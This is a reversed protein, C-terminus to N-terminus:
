INKRFLRTFHINKKINNELTENYIQTYKTYKLIYQINSYINYIQTYKEEYIERSVNIEFDNSIRGEILSQPKLSLYNFKKENM